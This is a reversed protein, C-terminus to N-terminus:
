GYMKNYMYRAFPTVYLEALNGDRTARTIVGTQTLFVCIDLNSKYSIQIQCKVVQYIPGSRCPRIIELQSM